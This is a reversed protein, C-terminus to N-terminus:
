AKFFNKKTALLLPLQLFVTKFTTVRLPTLFVQPVPLSLSFFCLRQSSNPLSSLVTIYPSTNLFYFISSKHDYLLLHPTLNCNHLFRLPPPQFTILLLTRDLNILYFSQQAATPTRSSYTIM